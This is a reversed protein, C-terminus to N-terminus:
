SLKQGHKKGKVPKRTSLDLGLQFCVPGRKGGGFPKHLPCESEPFSWSTAIAGHGKPFVTVEADIYDLPALAAAKDVLDDDEAYCILWPINKEAIRKINVKEGFMTVPMTGDPAIPKTYSDFSLQTIGLPLDNREYLLWYNLAAATSTVNLKAGPRDLMKLDRFFSFVPAEREMSKLKYVWSMVKGDVISNGNPLIKLAYGLDRFRGPIHQLYEILSQSRTGDIPAVCTILADVLGDLRGSLIDLLAIFGGQCFGNLTVDRGHIEKIIECFYKTDLADDEGTMVQVAPTENINKIVRIYTPVGQNAFSHAYSKDENPLFGLINEGLVYPPLILVPKGTQDVKVGKHIPLVQYVIFRETEAAKIYNGNDFHFGFEPEISRIAEPYDETILKMVRAKRESMEKYDEGNGLASNLSTSMLKLNERMLFENMAHFSSFFGKRAIQFNFQLLELYDRSTEDPFHTVLKEKELNLFSDLAIWYPVMFDSVYKTIGRLYTQMSETQRAAAEIYDLSKEVSKMKFSLFDTFIDLPSFFERDIDSM